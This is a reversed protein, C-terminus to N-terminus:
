SQLLGNYRKVNRNYLSVEDNYATVEKQYTKLKNNYKEVLANYKEYDGSNKLSDLTGHMSKLSNEDQTMSSKRTALDGSMSKISKQLNDMEEQQTVTGAIAGYSKGTSADYIKVEGLQKTAAQQQVNFDSAAILASAKNSTPDLSPIVGIKNGTSTTEAYCYGSGYTSYQNSCQIGIAMHNQQDYTFLATGYGLTRLLVTALFSKDSCVGSNSFLTEYPYEMSVSKDGALIQKAKADDYPISQVFALALEAIQDDALKNKKGQVAIDNVLNSIATDGLNTKLFMAYYDKEWDTPATGFYSYEKPQAAYYTYVSKYLTQSVSYELGKYEWTYTKQVPGSLEPFHTQNKGTMAQEAAPVIQSISKYGKKQAIYWLASAVVALEVVVVLFKKVINKLM